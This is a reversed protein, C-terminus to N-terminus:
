SRKQERTAFRAIINIGLVTIAVLLSGAWALRVLNDDSSMAFSFIVGPLSAMPKTVDYSISTNGLATFLLPATEGSIRAFALLAATLIGSRASKWIIASVTKWHPSGLALGAERLATPQLKMVDETTRTIIPVAILALAVSGSLASFGHFPHVLIIWIFLGVLVSPASLLIDNLFRVVEAFVSTRGFEALWTGALVGVILAMIMAVACMFVSGIIANLLGGRLGSAPQVMTFVDLDLGGGGKVVLSWLIAALAILAIGTAVYCLVTFVANAAMRQSHKLTAM